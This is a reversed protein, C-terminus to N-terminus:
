VHEAGCFCGTAATMFTVHPSGPRPNGRQSTGCSGFPRAFGLEQPPFAVIGVAVSRLPLAAEIREM